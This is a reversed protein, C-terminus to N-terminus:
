NTGGPSEGANSSVSRVGCRVGNYRGIRPRSLDSEYRQLCMIRLEGIEEVADGHQWTPETPDWWVNGEVVVPGNPTLAVDWGITRVPLFLLATREVLRRAESWFPLEFGAFATKTKPHIPITVIEAGTGPIRNANQLRGTNLTVPAEINGKLGRLFTTWSRM